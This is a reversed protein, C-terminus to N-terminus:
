QVVTSPSSIGRQALMIINGLMTARQNGYNRSLHSLCRSPVALVTPLLVNVSLSSLPVFLFAPRSHPGPLCLSSLPPFSVWLPQFHSFPCALPTSTLSEVHSAKNPFLCKKPSSPTLSFTVFSSDPVLPHALTLSKFPGFHRRWTTGM